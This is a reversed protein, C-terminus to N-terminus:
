IKFNIMLYDTIINSVDKYFYESLKDDIRTKYRGMFGEKTIDKCLHKNNKKM